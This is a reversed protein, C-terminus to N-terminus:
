WEEDGDSFDDEQDSDTVYEIVFEASSDDEESDEEAITQPVFLRGAFFFSYLRTSIFIKGDLAM